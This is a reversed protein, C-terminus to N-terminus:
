AVKKTMYDKQKNMMRELIEMEKELIFIDNITLLGIKNKQHLETQLKKVKNFQKDTEKELDNLQKILTKVLVQENKPLKKLQKKQQKNLM